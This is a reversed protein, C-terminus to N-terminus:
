SNRGVHRIRYVTVALGTVSDRCHTEIATIMDEIETSVDLPIDDTNPQTLGTLSIGPIQIRTKHGGTDSLFFLLARERQADDSTPLVPAAVSDSEALVTAGTHTLLTLALVAAELANYATGGDTYTEVNALTLDPIPLNVSARERSKDLFTLTIQGMTRNEGETRIDRLSM